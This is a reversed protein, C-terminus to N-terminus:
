RFKFNDPLFYAKKYDQQVRTIQQRLDKETCGYGNFSSGGFILKGGRYMLVMGPRARNRGVLLPPDSMLPSHVDYQVFRHPDRLSQVCPSWRNRQEAQYMEYTIAELKASLKPMLSSVIVVLLTQLPGAKWAELFTDYELDTVSPIGLICQCRLRERCGGLWKRLMDPCKLYLPTAMAPDAHFRSVSKRRNRDLQNQRRPHGLSSSRLSAKLERETGEPCEPKIKQGAPGLGSVVLCELLRKNSQPKPSHDTSFAGAFIMLTRVYQSVTQQFVRKIGSAASRDDHGGKEMPKMSFMAHAGFKSYHTSLPLESVSDDPSTFLLTMLGTGEIHLLLNANIKVDLSQLPEDVSDWDWQHAVWGDVDRLVGGDANVMLAMSCRRRNTYYVCGLGDDIFSAVMVLDRSDEFLLTYTRGHGLCRCIQCVAINGSPYYIFITGDPLGVCFKGMKTKSNKGRPVPTVPPAPPAAPPKTTAAKGSISAARPRPPPKRKEVYHRFVLPKDHGKAKSAQKQTDIHRIIERLKNRTWIILSDRDNSSHPICPLMDKAIITALSFSLCSGIAQHVLQVHSCIMEPARTSSPSQKLNKAQQKTDSEGKSKKGNCSLQREVELRQLARFVKRTKRRYALLVQRTESGLSIRHAKWPEGTSTKKQKEQGAIASTPKSGTELRIDYSGFNPISEPLAPLEEWNFDFFTKMAPPLRGGRDRLAKLQEGIENLLKPALAICEEFSHTKELSLEMAAM